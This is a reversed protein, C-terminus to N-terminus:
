NAYYQDLIKWKDLLNKIQLEKIGADDTFTIDAYTKTIEQIKDILGSANMSFICGVSNIDNLLRLLSISKENEHNDLIAFLIIEKPVEERELSEILYLRFVFHKHTVFM